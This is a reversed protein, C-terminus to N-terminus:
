RRALGRLRMRNTLQALRQAPTLALNRRLLALDHEDVEHGSPDAVVALRHGTARLLRDLREASPKTRGREIDSIAAQSTRTRRALEAQSLGARSRATRVTATVNM